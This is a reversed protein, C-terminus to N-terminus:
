FRRKAKVLFQVSEISDDGDLPFALDLHLMSGRSSRTSSLRLGFGVDRLLGLETPDDERGAFWAAGADFFIAAGVRVLRLVHWRTYFRQEVTLLFRRNGDQYRLPYGRLGNDGGLLLQNERDLNHAADVTLMVYFQHMAFNPLFYRVSGGSLLNEGGDSGFRGSGHVEAILIQRPGPAVTTTFLASVIARNRDAGFATNSWGLRAQIETAFNIDETRHIKDVNQMKAYREQLLSFGVWPYVLLRDAPLSGPTTAGEIPEFRDRAYTLGFSWRDVNRGVLGPSLGGRIELYDEEHRFESTIEGLDYLPDTREWTMAGFGGAFRADLSFFPRGFDIQKLFGDSNDQYWLNLNLRTGALNPDRYRYLVSTRDVDKNWQIGIDKGFGLFNSDELGVRIANEGGGRGFSFGAILTWVDRVIVQVDVRGDEYKAPYVRADYFLRSARLMRESEELKRASYPEGPKFLLERRIVHDRTRIHLRNAFRFIKNNEKPDSTDFVDTVEIWIEGIVAGEAELTEDDPVSSPRTRQAFDGIGGSSSQPDDGAAALFPLVLCVVAVAVRATSGRVAFGSSATATV